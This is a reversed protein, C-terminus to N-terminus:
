ESAGKKEIRVISVIETTTTIHRYEVPLYQEYDKPHVVIHGDLTDIIEGKANYIVTSQVKQPEFLDEM